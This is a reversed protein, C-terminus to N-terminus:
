LELRRMRKVERVADQGSQSLHAPLRCQPSRRSLRIPAAPGGLHALRRGAREEMCM